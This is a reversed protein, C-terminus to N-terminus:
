NKILHPYQTLIEKLDPPFVNMDVKEYSVGPRQLVDKGEEIAQSIANSDLIEPRNFETHSFSLIKNQIAEIGGMWSFHYSTPCITYPTNNRRDRIQQPTSNFLTSGRLIKTGGWMCDPGKTNKFNFFFAHFNMIISLEQFSNVKIYNKILNISPIEDVDGLLCISDPKVLDYGYALGNRMEYEMKWPANDPTYTNVDRYEYLSPNQEIQIYNIKDHFPKFRDWNGELNYPKPKGSFTYDSECIVFKDVINSLYKLRVELIDLENNIITFDTINM